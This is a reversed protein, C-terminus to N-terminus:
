PSEQWGDCIWCLGDAIGGRWCVYDHGGNYEVYRSGVGSQELLKALRRHYPLLVWEQTGVELFIRGEFDRLYTNEPDELADMLVGRWLSSSQAIVNQLHGPVRLATWLATLGGLSQGAVIVRAPDKTIPHHRRAWPLLEDAIFYEIGAGDRLENWRAAIDSSEILLAYMPPIRGDNILNNLTEPFMEGRAWMDGDFVVIVPLGADSLTQVTGQPSADVAPPEYLWILRDQVTHSSVVGRRTTEPRPKLWPQPPADALEVVSLTNRVRNVCSEPNRPDALGQDLAHRISVQDFGTIDAITEKGYSVLFCYSARWDTKMRYAIHWVDTGPIRKLLSDKLNKEDTIRNIFLLVSRADASRWLFTVISHDKSQADPTVVPTQVVVNEWFWEVAEDALRESEEQAVAGKRVDARLRRLRQKLPALIPSKVLPVPEPRPIKPPTPRAGLAGPQAPLQQRRLDRVTPRGQQKEHKSSSM